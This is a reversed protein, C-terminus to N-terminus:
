VRRLSPPVCAEEIITGPVEFKRGSKQVAGPKMSWRRLWWAGTWIESGTESANRQKQGWLRAINCKTIGLGLNM